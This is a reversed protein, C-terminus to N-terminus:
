KIPSYSRETQTGTDKLAKPPGSCGLMSRKPNLAAGTKAAQKSEEKNLRDSAMTTDVPKDNADFRNVGQTPTMYPDNAQLSAPTQPIAPQSLGNKQRQKNIQDRVYNTKQLPRGGLVSKEYAMVLATFDGCSM